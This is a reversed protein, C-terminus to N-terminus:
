DSDLRQGTVERRRALYRDKEEWLAATWDRLDDGNASPLPLVRVRVDVQRCRGCLYDWFSPPGGAYDITVDVVATLRTSLAELAMRLGGTKPRLLTEYPSDQASRKAATFRTGELFNLVSTPRERIGDCARRIAERDHERLAPNASLRAASYRRVYPFELLWLAVGILPVWILERKTFFVFPPAAGHLAFVLVLIDAWSQHNSVLLYWADRKLPSQEAADVQVQMRTIRLARAMAKACGVWGQLAHALGTGCLVRIRGASKPLLRRVTGLLAIPVFWVVTNLVIFAFAACGRLSDAMAGLRERQAPM